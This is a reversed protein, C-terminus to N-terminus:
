RKNLIKDKMRDHFTLQKNDSRGHTEKVFTDLMADWADEDRRSQVGKADLALADTFYRVAMALADIRDDHKLAGRAKSMRALQYFLMYQPAIDASYREMATKYDMEIVSPDIILRHQNMIPELSETIRLEKQQNQRVEEIKCPYIRNMHPTLLSLYMGDGFNSEVLITNVKHRKATECLAILTENSYGGMMGGSEPVYVNGSAMKAVTYGTEDSGRGSPDIVLVSHTYAEYHGQIVESAYYYQGAMAVNPLHNLRSLPNNTWHIHNPAKDPLCNSIILDNIKLPYRNADSLTTDLMFQLNFGSNGYELRRELLDEDTFRRPDTSTGVEAGADLADMVAPALRSGYTAIQEATPYLAPYIFMNYGRTELLNYLSQECQMTGLYLIKGNPSLVAAFEKVLQALKERLDHTMSNSVVEIDDAVILDARSGTLQGSIGVSKVSPSGSPTSPGVDFAVNSDRQGKTTDAQLHQLLPVDRILAKVFISFADARDKGASVVMIKLQPNCYLRWAVYAVTIYSKGIGRFAAVISKKPGYQLYYAIAYQAPTPEPLGLHDWILYMFNRFDSKYPDIKGTDM